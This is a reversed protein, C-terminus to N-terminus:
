FEELFYLFFIKLFVPFFSNVWFMKYMYKCMHLIHAQIVVGFRLWLLPLIIFMFGDTLGLYVWSFGMSCWFWSASYPDMYESDGPTVLNEERPIEGTRLNVVQKNTPSCENRRPFCCSCCNQMPSCPLSCFSVTYNGLSGCLRPRFSAEALCM